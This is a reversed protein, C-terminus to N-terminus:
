EWSGTILSGQNADNMVKLFVDIEQQLDEVHSIVGVVRNEKRLSKLTDFAVQLAEKDLSGFGEDLFFFNQESKNQKQVSEALALALSLSAQFTQGGSLTKVSRLKGDNLYDRILFDNKDSLELKLQQRSLKYFRENAAACLQQLYFSSIYNVFGSSRFLNKLKDINESRIKLTELNALLVQKKELDEEQRKLFVDEKIKQANQTEFVETVVKLQEKELQYNEEDFLKGELEKALRQTNQEANYLQANFQQIAKDQEQVNMVESLVEKVQNIDAFPSNSLNQGLQAAIHELEDNIVKLQTSLNHKRESFVIQQQKQEEIQQTLKEYETQITLIRQTLASKEEELQTLSYNANLLDKTVLQQKLLAVQGEKERYSLLIKDLAARYKSITDEEAKLQQRQKELLLEKSDLVRQLEEVEQEKKELLAEDDANFDKWIFTQLHKELDLNHQKFRLLLKEKAEQQNKLAYELNQFSILLDGLTKKNKKLEVLKEQEEQQHSAVDEVHLTQPHDSSGCLPCPENPKLNAVYEGLKLQLQYHNFKENILVEEKELLELKNRILELSFVSNLVSNILLEGKSIELIQEKINNIQNEVIHLESADQDVFSKLHKKNLYWQKLVNLYGLDLLQKKVHKEEEALMDLSANLQIRETEKDQLLKKGKDVRIALEATEEELKRVASLREVDQLQIKLDDVKDYSLKVNSLKLVNNNLENLVKDLSIILSSLEQNIQGEQQTLKSQQVLDTKFYQLGYSYQELKKKLNEFYARRGELEQQHRLQSQYETYTQRLKELSQVQLVKSEMQLKAQSVQKTLEVLRQKSHEIEEVSVNQYNALEGNLHQVNETNKKELSAAQYFFEYKELQFIERLMVTRDKDGLQLFEQFKGQPIIITRRFNDYSLGIVKEGNAGELPQWSGDKELKYSTRELTGVKDHQKSNRKGRVVFRYQHQDYNVFVFDILLENSRLNMMNYSRNDTRNLRETDGYLAYSIAELVSSKGSGVSGFIGFLQGELLKTFDITQEQQYSYLGKITLSVPIM